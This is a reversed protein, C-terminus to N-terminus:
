PNAAQSPNADEHDTFTSTIAQEFDRIWFRQGRVKLSVERPLAPRGDSPLDYLLTTRAEQIILSSAAKFPEFNYLEVSTFTGTARNLTFRARMHAAATDHEGAPNLRYEYTATAADEAVLAVASRDLQAALNSASDTAPRTARYRQQEEDTPPRNKESLLTWRSGGRLRPDFREVRDKGGGTTTQTFAWGKPGEARFNALAAALEPPEAPLAPGFAAAAPDTAPACGPLTALAAFALLVSLALRPLRSLRSM